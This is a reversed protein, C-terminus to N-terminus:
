WFRPPALVSRRPFMGLLDGVLGLGGLYCALGRWRMLRPAAPVTCRRDNNRSDEEAGVIAPIGDRAACSIIGGFFLSSIPDDNSGGVETCNWVHLRSDSSMASQTGSSSILRESM